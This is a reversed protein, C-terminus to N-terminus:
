MQPQTSLLHTHFQNDLLYLSSSFPEYSTYFAHEVGGGVFIAGGCGNRVRVVGRGVPGDAAILQSVIEICRGITTRFDASVRTDRINLIRLENELMTKLHVLNTKPPFVIADQSHQSVDLEAVIEACRERTEVREM